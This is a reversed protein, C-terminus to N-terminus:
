ECRRRITFYKETGRVGVRIIGMTLGVAMAMLLIAPLVLITGKFIGESWLGASYAVRELQDIMDLDPEPEDKQAAYDAM